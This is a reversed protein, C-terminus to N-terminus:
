ENIINIDYCLEKSIENAEIESPNIDYMEDSYHEGKWIWGTDSETLEKRYFQKVHVLEHFLTEILNEGRAKHLRCNLSILYENKSIPSVEGFRKNGRLDNAIIIYMVRVRPLLRKLGFNVARELEAKLAADRIGSIAVEVM